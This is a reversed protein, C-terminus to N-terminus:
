NRAVLKQEFKQGKWEIGRSRKVKITSTVIASMFLCFGVPYLLPALGVNRKGQLHHLENVGLSLAFLINLVSATLGAVLILSALDSGLFLNGLLASYIAFGMIFFIPYLGIVFILAANLLSVLGYSRISDSFIRELGHYISKFDSEWDTKILGDGIMVRLKFGNSKVLQAIAADEVIRERIAAHGGLSDYVSRKIMIFTGFVYARKSQKDNVKKMPYLLNIGGSVIPLTAKSWIGKLNVRPSISFMDLDSGEFYSLSNGVSLPGFVSDADVFLLIKGKSNQFGVQCPWSKGVWGWPKVGASVVKVRHDKTEFTEAISKTKDSSNDDVVIIELNRYHQASLSSICRSIKEEENRAAIIVSVLPEIENKVRDKVYSSIHPAQSETRLLYILILLLGLASLIAFFSAILSPIFLPL